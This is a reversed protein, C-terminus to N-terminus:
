VHTYVSVGASTDPNLSFPINRFVVSIPNAVTAPNFRSPSVVYTSAFRWPVGDIPSGILLSKLYSNAGLLTGSTALLGTTGVARSNALASNLVSWDWAILVCSIVAEESLIQVDGPTGKSGGFVDIPVDNHKPILEIDVGDISYGLPSGNYSVLAAGNVHFPVGM